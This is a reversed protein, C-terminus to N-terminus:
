AAPQSPLRAILKWLADLGEGTQASVLPVPWEFVSEFLRAHRVREAHTLKDVKTGVLGGPCGLSRMWAWAERDAELGPHRADVLLLVGIAKGRGPEV